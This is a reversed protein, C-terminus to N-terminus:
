LDFNIQSFIYHYHQETRPILQIFFHRSVKKKLHSAEILNLKEMSIFDGRSFSQIISAKQNM